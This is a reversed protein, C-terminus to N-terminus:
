RFPSKDSSSHYQLNLSCFMGIIKNKKPIDVGESRNIVVHHIRSEFAAIMRKRKLSQIWKKLGFPKISQM